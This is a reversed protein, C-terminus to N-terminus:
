WMAILPTFTFLIKLQCINKVDEEITEELLSEEVDLYDLLYLLNKMNESKIYCVKIQYMFNEKYYYQSIRLVVIYKFM